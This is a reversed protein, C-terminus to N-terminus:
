NSCSHTSQEHLSIQTIRHRVQHLAPGDGHHFAWRLLNELEEQTLPQDCVIGNQALESEIKFRPDRYNRRKYITGTVVWAADTCQENDWGCIRCDFNEVKMNLPKYTRAVHRWVKAEELPIDQTRCEACGALLLVLLVVNKSLLLAEQHKRHTKSKWYQPVESDFRIFEEEVM